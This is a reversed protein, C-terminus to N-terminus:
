NSGPDPVEWIDQTRQDLRQYALGIGNAIQPWTAVGMVGIAATLLAYEIVDQGDDDCLLRRLLATMGMYADRHFFTQASACADKRHRL